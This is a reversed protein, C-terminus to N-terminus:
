VAGGDVKIMAGSVYSAADSALFAVVSALEEPAGFRELAHQRRVRKLAPEMDWGAAIDTLFPGTIIGNVRVHPGLAQAFGETMANLGAKAAAYPIIKPRVRISGLSSINVIAGSGADYMRTGVTAMLRFPGKLNVGFVKDYLDEGVEPLSPYLPSIGANNVLIDVRGFHEYVTDVLTDIEGWHGVHCGVGLPHTGTAAAVEAAVRECAEADRSAIVVDAGHEALRDVIVRGLGRSGGTVIAVKGQLSKTATPMSEASM